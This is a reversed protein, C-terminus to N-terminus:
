AGANHAERHGGAPWRRWRTLDNKYLGVSAPTASPTGPTGPRRDTDPCRYLSPVDFVLVRSPSPPPRRSTGWFLEGGTVSRGAGGPYRKMPTDDAHRTPLYRDNKSSM